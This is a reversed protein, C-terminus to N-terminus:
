ACVDFGRESERFRDRANRAQRTNCKKTHLKRNEAGVEGAPQGTFFTETTDGAIAPSFFGRGGSTVQLTAPRM